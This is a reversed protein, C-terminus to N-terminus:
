RKTIRMSYKLMAVLSGIGDSIGLLHNLSEILLLSTVVILNNL